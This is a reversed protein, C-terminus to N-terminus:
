HERTRGLWGRADFGSTAGFVWERATLKHDAVAAAIDSTSVLGLLREGDMVLVRHIGADRMYDAARDVPTEPGLGCISPNMAESVVHEALGNWERGAESSHSTADGDQETWLDHFFAGPPEDEDEAEEAPGLDDWSPRDTEDLPKDQLEAALALLDTASVVGVVKSGAIVPAGSVHLTALAEMADRVSSEPSFALLDTTMIDRLRLM